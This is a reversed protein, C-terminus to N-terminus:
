IDQVNEDVIVKNISSQFLVLSALPYEFIKFILLTTFFDFLVLYSTTVKLTRRVSFYDQYSKDPSNKQPQEVEYEQHM